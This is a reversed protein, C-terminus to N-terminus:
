TVGDARSELADLAAVARDWSFERVVRDRGAAGMRARLEPSLALTTIARALEGADNGRVLLGTVGQEVAEPVGGTRGGIVPKASAAAELFVIGFGELDVGDVRNPMLFIDCAAYHAPLDDRSVEGVFRVMNQLGAAAVRSELAKREDGDGVIVYRLPPVGPDIRTLADIVLDHGKRRQLRGVSLLILEDDPALVARLRRTEVGPHFRETDVGPRIIQVRSEPVGLGRLLSRTHSSNAIIFDAACYVRRGLFRLERSSDLVTVDEGHAWCV